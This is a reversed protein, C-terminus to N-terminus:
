TLTNKIIQFRNITCRQAYSLQMFSKKKTKDCYGLVLKSPNWSVALLM